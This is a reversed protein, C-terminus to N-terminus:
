IRLKNDSLWKYMSKDLYYIVISTPTYVHLLNKLLPSNRNFFFHNTEPSDLHAHVSNSFFM